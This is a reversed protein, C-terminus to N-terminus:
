WSLLITIVQKKVLKRLFCTQLILFHETSMRWAILRIWFKLRWVQVCHRIFEFLCHLLRHYCDKLIQLFKMGRRMKVVGRFVNLNDYCLALTGIAMIKECLTIVIWYILFAQMFKNSELVKICLVGLRHFQVFVFCQLTGFHLCINWATLLM